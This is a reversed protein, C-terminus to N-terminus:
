VTTGPCALDRLTKKSLVTRVLDDDEQPTGNDTDDRRRRAVPQFEFSSVPYTLGGVDRLAVFFPPPMGASEAQCGTWDAELKLALRLADRARRRRRVRPRVCPVCHRKLGSPAPAGQSYADQRPRMHLRPAAPGGVVRTRVRHKLSPRPVISTPCVAAVVVLSTTATRCGACVNHARVRRTRRTRTPAAATRAPSSPRSLRSWASTAIAVVLSTM